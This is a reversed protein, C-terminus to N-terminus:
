LRNGLSLGSIALTNIGKWQFTNVSGNSLFPTTCEVIHYRRIKKPSGPTRAGSLDTAMTVPQPRSPRPDIGSLALYKEECHGSRRWAGGLRKDLPYRPSNRREWADADRQAENILCLSFNEKGALLASLMIPTSGSTLICCHPGGM